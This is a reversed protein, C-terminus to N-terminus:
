MEVQTTFAVALDVNSDDMIKELVKVFADSKAIVVKIPIINNNVFEIVKM